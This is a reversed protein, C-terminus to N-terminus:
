HSPRRAILFPSHTSRGRNEHLGRPSLGGIEVDVILNAPRPTALEVKLYNDSLGLGELELTVVSLTQGVMRRRFDLNKAAALERLV